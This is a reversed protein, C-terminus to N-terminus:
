VERNTPLTLHTYSVPGPVDALTAYSRVGGISEAHPNVPYVTGNFGQGLLNKLVANGIKAPDRSAGIVAVSRPSLLRAMSAAEAIHERDAIAAMSAPTPAISFQTKVTGSEFRCDREWGAAAFLGLMKANNPLTDAAFTHIGHSRAIVALHELLLTGVGRGQHEDAVVFAVEAVGPGVVDYRAAAMIEDGLLAVRAAHGEDGLRNMELSTATARPVPSFFRYYVSDASLHEYMEALRAEDEARMARMHVTAGDALVVDGEWDGPKSVAGSHVGAGPKEM